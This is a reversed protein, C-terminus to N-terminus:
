GNQRQHLPEACKGLLWNKAALEAQTVKRTKMLDQIRDRIKGPLYVQDM